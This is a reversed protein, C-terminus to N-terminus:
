AIYEIIKSNEEIAKKGEKTGLWNFLDDLEDIHKRAGKGTVKTLTVTANVGLLENVMTYSVKYKNVIITWNDKNFTTGNLIYKYQKTGKIELYKLQSKIASELSEDISQSIFSDDLAEINRNHIRTQVEQLKTELEEKSLNMVIERSTKDLRNMAQLMSSM